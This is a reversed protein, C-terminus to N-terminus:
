NDQGSKKDKRAKARKTMEGGSKGKHCQKCLVQLFQVAVFLRGRYWDWSRGHNDWTDGVPIVPIIHDVQTEDSEFLLLCKACSFKGKDPGSTIRAAARCDRYEPSWRFVKRCFAVFYGDLKKSFPVPVKPM